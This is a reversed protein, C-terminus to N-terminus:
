AQDPVALTESLDISAFDDDSTVSLKQILGNVLHWITEDSVYTLCAELDALVAARTEGAYLRIISLEEITFTPATM